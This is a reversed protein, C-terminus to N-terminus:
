YSYEVYIDFVGATLAATGVVVKISAASTAKIPIYLATGTLGTSRAIVAPATGNYPASSYAGAAGITVGGATLAVTAAGASTLATTVDITVATIVANTPITATIAPTITAVAGGDVAFDYHAKAVKKRFTAM